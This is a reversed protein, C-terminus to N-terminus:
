IGPHDYLGRSRRSDADRSPGCLWRHSRARALARGSRAGCTTTRQTESGTFIPGSM